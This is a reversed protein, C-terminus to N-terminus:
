LGIRRESILRNLIDTPTPNDVGEGVLDARALRGAPTLGREFAAPDFAHKREGVRWRTGRKTATRARGVLKHEDRLYVTAAKRCRGVTRDRTARPVTRSLDRIHTKIRVAIEDVSASVDVIPANAKDAIELARTPNPTSIYGSLQRDLVQSVALAFLYGVWRPAGSDAVADDRFSSQDGPVLSSYLATYDVAVLGLEDDQERRAIEDRVFAGKGSFPAGTVVIIPVSVRGKIGAQSFRGVEFDQGRGVLDGHRCNRRGEGKHDRRSHDDRGALDGRGYRATLRAARDSAAQDVHGGPVHASVRVGGTIAMLRDIASEQSQDGRYVSGAHAYSGSGMLVKVSKVSSAYRGDVRAFGFKSVYTEFTDLTAQANATLNAGGLLGDTGSVIQVDLAESLSENLAARLSEGM